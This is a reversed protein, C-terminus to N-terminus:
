RRVWGYGINVQVTRLELMWWRSEIMERGKSAVIVKKSM